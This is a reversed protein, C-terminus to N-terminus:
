ADCAQPAIFRHARRRLLCQGVGIQQAQLHDIANAQDDRNHPSQQYGRQRGPVATRGIHRTSETRHPELRDGDAGIRGCGM